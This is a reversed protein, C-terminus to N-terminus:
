EPLGAKRLGDLWRELYESPWFYLIRRLQSLTIEFPADDKAKQLAIRAEEIQGMQSQSAALQLFHFSHNGGQQIGRKAWEIAKEYQRASFYAMSKARFSESLWPDCPSLQIGKDLVAIAEETQDSVALSFGLQLYAQSFSPNLEIARYQESFMESLENRLEHVEGMVLHAEALQPDLIVSKRAYQEAQNLSEFAFETYGTMYWYILYTYALGVYAPAFDPNIEIAKEFLIRAEPFIESDSEEKFGQYYTSMGRMWLDYATLNQPQSEALRQGEAVKLRAGMASAIATTIEDQITFIDELKRDYRDAWIHAGTTADILQASIRTQDGAKRVSGEVVYRVGLDKSVQKVDVAKGKYTFSSNRAIVPFSRFSSLRTILDEAIGDAFYEQDPDKSLNDFPLVAIAPAGGFGPVTFDESVISAKQSEEKSPAGTQSIYNWTVMSGIGIIMITIAVLAINRWKREAASKTKGVNRVVGSDMPIRYVKIPRTINKVTHEGLDEYGLALKSAIQEYASGSICIGGADALGEIRAAINVGDGYIRDGEEIVDGLNIGIRFQMKRNDPLDANKAKIAQQIEVACQVADVVSAFESLLNDGPSDIVRGHHQGIIIVITERYAKLTSVTAAENEEMLRSYGVVDASLIASIKRRYGETAM